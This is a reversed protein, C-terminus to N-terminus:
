ADRATNTSRQAQTLERTVHPQASLQTGSCKRPQACLRGRTHARISADTRDGLARAGAAWVRRVAAARSRVAAPGAVAGVRCPSAAVRCPRAAVRCPRAAKRVKHSRAVAAARGQEPRRPRASASAGPSGRGPSGTDAMSAQGASLGFSPYVRSSAAAQRSHRASKHPAPARTAQDGHHRTRPLPAQGGQAVARARSPHRWRRQAPRHSGSSTPEEMPPRRWAPRSAALKLGGREAFGGPLCAAAGFGGARTSAHL